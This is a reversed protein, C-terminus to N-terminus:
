SLAISNRPNRDDFAVALRDGVKWPAGDEIPRQAQGEHEVGLQDVYRYRAFWVDSVADLHREVAIVEGTTRIGQTSLDKATKRRQWRVAFPAGIAVTLLLGIGGYIVMGRQEIEQDVRSWSPDSALYRVRVPSGVALSEYLPFSVMQDGLYRRGNATFVYRLHENPGYRGSTLYRETIAGDIFVGDLAFRIERFGYYAPVAFLVAFLAV